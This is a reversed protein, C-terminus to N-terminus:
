KKNLRCIKKLLRTTSRSRLLPIRKVKGGYGLVTDNGVIEKVKYDSGKVLIDPRINKILKDPTSENFIVVYDVCGLAAVIEARDLGSVVPRGMGKLRRLSSDSNVGVILVDGFSKAKNLYRVHGLHILDFCGNTFVIKERKRSKNLVKKLQSLSKIKSKPLSLNM